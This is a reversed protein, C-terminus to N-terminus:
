IVGQAQLWTLFDQVQLRLLRRSEAKADAWPGPPPPKGPSTKEAILGPLQQRAELRKAIPDYFTGFYVKNTADRKVRDAFYHATRPLDYDRVTSWEWKGEEKQRESDWFSADRQGVFEIAVKMQPDAADTKLPESRIEFPPGAPKNTGVKSATPIPWVVREVIVGALTTQNTGLQVGRTAMEERIVQLAEEESLFVPPAMVICGTSGRGEGHQFIPAVVAVANTQAPNPSGKPSNDAALLQATDALLFLSAAGTMEPWKCWAPPQHRQLLGPRAATEMRTPYKPQAYKRIPKTKM